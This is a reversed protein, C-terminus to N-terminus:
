EGKNDLIELLEDCNCNAFYNGKKDKIAFYISNEKVYKRAKDIIGEKQKLQEKLQQNEKQLKNVYDSVHRDVYYSIRNGKIHLFRIERPYAVVSCENYEEENM